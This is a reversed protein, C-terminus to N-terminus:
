SARQAFRSTYLQCIRQIFADWHLPSGVDPGLASYTTSDLHINDMDVVLACKADLGAAHAGSAMTVNSLESLCHAILAEPRKHLTVDPRLPSQFEAAANLVVIGGAIAQADYDHVHAHHAELDRKRNKINKRHETMVSKAEIAIRTTAPTAMRMPEGASPPILEGHPPLGIALDTNWTAHGFTLDHNHSYVVAGSAAERALTPCHRVLDEVMATALAKSHKDSRSHYGLTRLHDLFSSPLAM